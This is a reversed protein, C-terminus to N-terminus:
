LGEEILLKLIDFHCGKIAMYATSEQKLTLAKANAKHQLLLQVIKKDGGSAADHIPQIGAFLPLLM